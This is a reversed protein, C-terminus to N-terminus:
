SQNSSGVTAMTATIEALEATIKKARTSVACCGITSKRANLSRLKASPLM